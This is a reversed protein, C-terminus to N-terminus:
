RSRFRLPTLSISPGVVRGTVHAEPTAHNRAKDAAHKATVSITRRKTRWASYLDSTLLAILFFGAAMLLCGFVREVGAPHETFGVWGFYGLM